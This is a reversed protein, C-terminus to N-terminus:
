RPGEPPPLLRDVPRSRFEEPIAFLAADGKGGDRRALESVDRTSEVRIRLPLSPGKAPDGGLPEGSEEASIVSSVHVPFGVVKELERAVAEGAEGRAPFLRLLEDFGSRAGELRGGPAAVDVVGEIKTRVSSVRGPVVLSLVWSGKLVWRATPEDQFPRGEGARTVLVSVDRFTTSSPGEAATARFLSQFDGASGSAVERASPDVLVLGGRGDLLAESARSRPFRSATLTWRARGGQVVVRGALARLREGAPGVSKEKESLVYEFVPPLDGPPRSAASSREAAERTGPTAEAAAVKGVAVTLAVALTLALTLALALALLVRSLIGPLM